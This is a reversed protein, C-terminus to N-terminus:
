EDEIKKRFEARVNRHSEAQSAFHRILEWVDALDRDGSRIKYLASRMTGLLAPTIAPLEWTTRAKGRPSTEELLRLLKQDEESCSTTEAASTREELPEPRSADLHKAAAIHAAGLVRPIKELETITARAAAMEPQEKKRVSRVSKAIEQLLGWVKTTKDADLANKRDSKITTLGM